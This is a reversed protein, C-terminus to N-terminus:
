LLIYALIFLLLLSPNVEPFSHVAPAAIGVLASLTKLPDSREEGEEDDSDLGGAEAEASAPQLAAIAADTVAPMMQLSTM